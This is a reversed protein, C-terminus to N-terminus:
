NGLVRVRTEPPLGYAGETVVVMGPQLGDAEIEILGADRLGTSVARQMATDNTVIAIVSQGAEDKVVSEIPVALRDQHEASVIRLTAFQGPRLNADAPLAVRVIATGTQADVQPSIFTLAGSVPVKSDDVIIEASQGLELMGLESSPVNATVVLRDLSVVEAMVTALDVAEGPKVNVRTVMGGLPSRVRLMAQQVRAADLLQEAEQLVRESTGEAQLLRRQRALAKEAFEVAVDAARSDLQFLVDGKDVHQGEVAMVAVVVGPQAPAVSASAAPQVGAPQPEVYGYATVYARLTARTISGVRVAVETAAAPEIEDEVPPQFWVLWALGSVVAAVVVIFGLRKM